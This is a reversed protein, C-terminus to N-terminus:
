HDTGQHKEYALSPVKVTFHTKTEEVIFPKDTLYGYRFRLNNLGLSETKKTVLKKQLNNRVVIYDGEDYVNIELPQEDSVINHKIANEVLIQLSLPIVMRGDTQRLNINIKLSEGFRIKQLHVYNEVFKMETSVEVVEKEKQDLVYRYVDALKRIFEAAQDSNKYVLTTLTNLSNFLFHPNVQNKLAEYQMTLGERKLKEENLALERWARFFAVSFFIASILFTIGLEIIMLFYGEPGFFAEVQGEMRAFWLYNIIFIAPASYLFVIVLSRILAQGPKRKWDNFREIWGELFENGKWLTTGILASYLTYKLLFDVSTIDSPDFLVSVGLGMLTILIIDRLHRLVSKRTCKM